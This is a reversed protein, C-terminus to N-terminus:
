QTVRRVWSWWGPEVAGPEVRIVRALARGNELMECMQMDMKWNGQGPIRIKAMGDRLFMKRTDRKLAPWVNEVGENWRKLRTRFSQPATAPQFYDSTWEQAKVAPVDYFQLSESARINRDMVVEDIEADITGGGTRKVFPLRQIFPLPHKMEFRLGVSGQGAGGKRAGPGAAAGAGVKKVLAVSGVLKWPGLILATAIVASMFPFTLNALRVWVAPKKGDTRKSNADFFDAVNRAQVLAGILLTFGLLYSNCYFSTHSPAKYLLLSPANSNAFDTLFANPATPQPQPKYTNSLKPPARQPRPPIPVAPTEPPPPTQQRPRVTPKPPKAQQLQRTLKSFFRISTGNSQHLFAHCRLSPPLRLLLQLPIAM